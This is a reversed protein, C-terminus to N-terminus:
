QTKRYQITIYSYMTPHPSLNSMNLIIDGGNAQYPMCAENNLLSAWPLILGNFPSGSSTYLMGKCGMYVSNLGINFTNNSATIRFTKEYIDSGDIWKGVIQEETSYQHANADGSVTAKVCFVGNGDASHGYQPLQWTDTTKIYCINLSYDQIDAINTNVVIDNNASNIYFTVDERGDYGYSIPFQNGSVGIRFHGSADVIKQLNAINGIVSGQIVTPADYRKEYVPKEKLVGDVTERWVGIIRENDGYVSDENNPMGSRKPTAFTTTGNGGYYNSAGHHSAYYTALDPYDAINLETGDCIVWGLPAVQGDFYAEVGIPAFGGGAGLVPIKMTDSIYKMIESAQSDKMYNKSM